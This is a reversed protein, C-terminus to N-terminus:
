HFAKTISLNCKSSCKDSDSFAYIRYDNGVSLSEEGGGWLERSGVRRRLVVSKIEFRSIM